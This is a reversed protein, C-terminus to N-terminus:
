IKLAKRAPPSGSSANVGLKRLERGEQLAEISERVRQIDERKNKFEELIRISHPSQPNVLISEVFDLNMEYLSLKELNELLIKPSDSKEPVLERPNPLKEFDIFAMGPVQSQM